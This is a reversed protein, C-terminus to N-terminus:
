KRVTYEWTANEGYLLHRGFAIRTTDDTIFRIKKTYKGTAQPAARYRFVGDPDVKFTDQGLICRLNEGSIAPLYSMHFSLYLGEAGLPPLGYVEKSARIQYGFCRRRPARLMNSLLEMAQLDYRLMSLKIFAKRSEFEEATRSSALGSAGISLITIPKITSLLSDGLAQNVGLEQSIIALNMVLSDEALDIEQQLASTWGKEKYSEFSVDQVKDILKSWLFVKGIAKQFVLGHCNEYIAMAQRWLPRKVEEVKWSLMSLMRTNKSLQNVWFADVKVSTNCSSITYLCIFVGIYRGWRKM